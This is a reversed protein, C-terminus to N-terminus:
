PSITRAASRFVETAREGVEHLKNYGPGPNFNADGWAFTGNGFYYNAFGKPLLVTADSGVAFLNCEKNFVADWKLLSETIGKDTARGASRKTQQDANHASNIAKERVQEMQEGPVQADEAQLLKLALAFDYTPRTNWVASTFGPLEKVLTGKRAEIVARDMCWLTYQPTEVTQINVLLLAESDNDELVAVGVGKAPERYVTVKRMKQKLAVYVATQPTPVQETVQINLVEKPSNADPNKLTLGYVSPFEMIAANKSGLEYGFTAACVPNPKEWKLEQSVLQYGEPVYVLIAKLRTQGPQTYVPELKGSGALAANCALSLVLSLLTKM